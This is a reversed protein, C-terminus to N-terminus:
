DRIEDCFHRAIFFLWELQSRQLLSVNFEEPVSELSIIQPLDNITFKHGEARTDSPRICARILASLMEM